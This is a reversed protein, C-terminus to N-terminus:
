DNNVVCFYMELVFKLYYLYPFGGKIRVGWNKYGSYDFEHLDELNKTKYTYKKSQVPDENSHLSKEGQASCPSNELQLTCVEEQPLKEWQAAWARLMRAETAADCSSLPSTGRPEVAHARFCLRLQQPKTARLCTPDEPVLSWVQTEQMLLCIRGWRVVM